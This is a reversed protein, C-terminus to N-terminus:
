LLLSCITCVSPSPFFSGLFSLKECKTLGSLVTRVFELCQNIVDKSWGSGYSTICYSQLWTTLEFTIRDHISSNMM